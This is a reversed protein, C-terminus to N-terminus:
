ITPNIRIVIKLDPDISCTTQLELHNMRLEIAVASDPVTIVIAQHARAVVSNVNYRDSIFEKIKTFEDPTQGLNKPLLDGISDMM